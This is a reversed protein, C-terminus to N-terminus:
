RGFRGFNANMPQFHRVAPDSIYRAMAGIVTRDFTPIETERESFIRFDAPPRGVQWCARRLRNSMDEVGTIQGAFFLRENIRTSYDSNLVEPSPLFTNRHM